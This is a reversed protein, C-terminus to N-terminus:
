VAGGEVVRGEPNVGKCISAPAEGAYGRVVSLKSYEGIRKTALTHPTPVSVM